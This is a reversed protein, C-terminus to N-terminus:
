ALDQKCITEMKLPDHMHHQRLWDHRKERRNASYAFSEQILCTACTEGIGLIAVGPSATLEGTSSAGAARRSESRRLEDSWSEWM